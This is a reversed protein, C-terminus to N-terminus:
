GYAAALLKIPPAVMKGQEQFRSAAQRGGKFGPAGVVLPANLKDTTPVRVRGRRGRASYEVYLVKPGNFPDNVGLVDELM